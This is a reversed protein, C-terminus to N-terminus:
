FADADGRELQGRSELELILKRRLDAIRKEAETARQYAPASLDGGCLSFVHSQLNRANDMALTVASLCVGLDDRTLGGNDRGSIEQGKEPLSKEAESLASM